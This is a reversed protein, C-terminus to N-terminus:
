LRKQFPIKIFFLVFIIVSIARMAATSQMSPGRARGIPGTGMESAVRPTNSAAYM